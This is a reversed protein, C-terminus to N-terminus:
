QQAPLSTGAGPMDFAVELNHEDAVQQMLMNVQDEPTSLTAQNSMAQEVYESQVDLNEFKDPTLSQLHKELTKVIGSMNKNVMNMKAQTELRSVVADLRSALKLYNLSETKKRIANQAYIKAGEINGKEM